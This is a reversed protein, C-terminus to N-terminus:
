LTHDVEDQLHIGYHIIYAAVIFAISPIFTTLIDQGTSITMRSSSILNTIWCVFLKIFPVFLAVFCQLLGYSLLHRANQETFIQGKSVNSFVRSLLWYALILPIMQFAYMVSLGIHTRVDIANEDNTWVHIDDKASITLSRSQPNHDEESYIAREYFGDDSHLAFTQRGMCSLVLCLIIFAMVFYCAYRMIQAAGKAFPESLLKKMFKM